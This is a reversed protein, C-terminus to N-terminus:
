RKAERLLKNYCYKTLNDFLLFLAKLFCPEKTQEASILPLLM